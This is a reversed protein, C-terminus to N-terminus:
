PTHYPAPVAKYPLSHASSLLLPQHLKLFPIFYAKGVTSFIRSTTSRVKPSNSCPQLRPSLNAWTFLNGGFLYFVFCFSAGRVVHSQKPGTSGSEQFGKLGAWDKSHRRCDRVKRRVNDGELAGLPTKGQSLLRDGGRPPKASLVKGQHEKPMRSGQWPGKPAKNEVKAWWDPAALFISCQSQLELMIWSKLVFNTKQEFGSTFQLLGQLILHFEQVFGLLQFKNKKNKTSNPGVLRTVSQQKEQHLAAGRDLQLPINPIAHFLLESIIGLIAPNIRHKSSERCTMVLHSKSFSQQKKERCNWYKGRQTPKKKIYSLPLSHILNQNIHDM